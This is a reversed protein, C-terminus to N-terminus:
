RSSRPIRWRASCTAGYGRCTVCINRSATASTSGRSSASSRALRAAGRADRLSRIFTAPTSTPIPPAARGCMAASCNAGGADGPRRRARGAAALRPRLGAPGMVADQFDLLGVRAIGERDPLWMLNPSHFDRLVWTPPADLVPQLAERWLAVSIARADDTVLRHRSAAPVLRAAARGRDPLADIDYRPLRHEVHPAVPLVDPLRTATCRSWCMSRPRYREAIPAPPDGAVVREDGLDEILLLGEDLDAAYIEPASLGQARLGTRWRSSRGWTRPSIRSRRQLAQRRAGAPRGATAAREDPHRQADGLM